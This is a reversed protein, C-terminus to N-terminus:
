CDHPDQDFGIKVIRRGFLRADVSYAGPGLLALAAANAIAFVADSSGGTVPFGALELMGCFAAALPTMVGFSLLLAVAILGPVLWPLGPLASRGDVFLHVAVSLRLLLL